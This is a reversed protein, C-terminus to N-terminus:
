PAAGILRHVRETDLELAQAIQRDSLGRSRLETAAARMAPHDERPKRLVALLAARQGQAFRTAAATARKM